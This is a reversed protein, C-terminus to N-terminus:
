DRGSQQHFAQGSGHAQNRSKAAQPDAAAAQPRAAQPTRGREQSTPAQGQEMGKRVEESGPLGLATALDIQHDQEQEIIGQLVEVLAFEGLAQAQAIRQTYFRVSEDEAGLDIQLMEKNDESVQAAMPEHVPYAGFYDIQRSIALAHELEQHAHDELQNAIEMYKAHDLKQSFITYQIIAKYERALDDQLGQVLQDRTVNTNQMGSEM